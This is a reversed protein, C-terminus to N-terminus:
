KQLKSFIKGLLVFIIHMNSAFLVALAMLSDSYGQVAYM